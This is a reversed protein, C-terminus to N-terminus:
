GRILSHIFGIGAYTRGKLGTVDFALLGRTFTHLIFLEFHSSLLHVNWIIGVEGVGFRVADDMDMVAM